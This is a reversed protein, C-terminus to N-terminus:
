NMNVFPETPLVMSILDLLTKVSSSQDKIYSRCKEIERYLNVNRACPPETRYIIEELAEVFSLADQRTRKEDSVDLGFNKSWEFRRRLDMKMFASAEKVFRDLSGRRSTLFMFRSCLAPPLREPNPTLVFFITETPEEFLKLLANSAERTMFGFSVVMIKEGKGIVKNLASKEIDYCDEIKFTSYRLVIFDPNNAIQVGWESKLFALLKSESEEASEAVLYAHHGRKINKTWDGKMMTIGDRILRKV